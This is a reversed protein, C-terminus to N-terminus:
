RQAQHYHEKTNVCSTMIRTVAKLHACNATMFHRSLEKTINQIKPQSWNTQVEGTYLIGERIVADILISKNKSQQPYEM